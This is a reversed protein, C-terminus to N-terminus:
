IRVQLFFRVLFDWVTIGADSAGRIRDTGTDVGRGTDISRGMDLHSGASLITRSFGM